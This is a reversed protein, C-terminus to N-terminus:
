QTNVVIAANLLFLLKVVTTLNM